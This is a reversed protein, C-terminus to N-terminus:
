TLARARELYEKHTSVSRVYEDLYLDYAAASAAAAEAYRELHSRDYDYRGSVATPYAGHAVHVVGAVAPGPFIVSDPPIDGAAVVDEALLITKRAALATERISWTPGSIQAYGDEDAIDVHVFAFDPTLPALALIPDGTFPDREVRVGDHDDGNSTLLDSGLM